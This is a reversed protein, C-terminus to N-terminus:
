SRAQMNMAMDWYSQLQQAELIHRAGLQTRVEQFKFHAFTRKSAAMVGTWLLRCVNPPGGHFSFGGENGGYDDDVDDDDEDDDGSEVDSVGEQMASDHGDGGGIKNNSKEGDGDGDANADANGGIGLRADRRKQEAEKLNVLETASPICGWEMRHMMLRTFKRIARPGGEVYVLNVHGEQCVVVSGTLLWQQANMDVKFRLRPNHIDNVSFVAVHAERAKLAADQLKRIKKERRQSPTLKRALNDMEHKLERARVQQIVKQEVKSPDAIAQDGLIRMFNSLKFKPEPIPILGMMMKDRREQEEAMRRQRRIRKREKETLYIPLPVDPADSKLASTSPPHQIFRYTKSNQLAFLSVDLGSVTAPISSSNNNASNVANTKLGIAARHAKPLFDADWWELAPVVDKDCAQSVQVQVTKGSSSSASTSTSANEGQEAAWTASEIIKPHLRGSAAGSRLREEARERERNQAAVYSGAEVFQLAKRGRAERSSLHIRTDDEEAEKGERAGEDEGKQYRHALYPNYTSATKKKVDRRQNAVATRVSKAAQIVVNGDQDIERGQADVRLTFVAAKKSVIPDAVAVPTASISTTPMSASTILPKNSLKQSAAAIQAAVSSQLAALTAAMTSSSQAANTVGKDKPVKVKPPERDDSATSGSRERKM